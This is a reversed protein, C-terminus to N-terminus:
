DTFYGGPTATEDFTYDYYYIGFPVISVKKTYAVRAQLVNNQMKVEIFADAPVEHTVTLNQIKKKTVDVPTGTSPPVAMAQVVASKMEQKFHEGNYAVPIYNIGANGILGLIAFAVLLKAAASGRERERSVDLKKM